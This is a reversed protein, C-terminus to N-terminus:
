YGSRWPGVMQGGRTQLTSGAMSTCMAKPPVKMKGYSIGLDKEFYVMLKQKTESDIALRTWEGSEANMWAQRLDDKASLGAKQLVAYVDKAADSSLGASQLTDMSSGGQVLAM